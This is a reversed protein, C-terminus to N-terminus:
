TTDPMATSFQPRETSWHQSCANCNKTYRMSKSLTSRLHVPKALIWFATTSWVPLLGGFLSWSIKKTCIQSQSTSQLTKKVGENLQDDGTTMYFGSKMVHWLGIWYLFPKNNYSYSFIISWISSKKKKKIQSWSVLCGSTSSKWKELKSWISFSWLISSM